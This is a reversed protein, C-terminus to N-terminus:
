WSKHFLPYFIVVRASAVGESEDVIRPCGGTDPNRKARAASAPLATWGPATAPYLPTYARSLGPHRSLWHPRFLARKPRIESFLFPM